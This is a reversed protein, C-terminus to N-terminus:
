WPEVGCRVATVLLRTAEERTIRGRQILGAVFRTIEDAQETQHQTMVDWAVDLWSRIITIQKAEGM